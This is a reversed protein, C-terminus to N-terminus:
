KEQQYKLRKYLSNWINNNSDCAIQQKTPCVELNSYDVYVDAKYNDVITLFCLAYGQENLFFLVQNNNYSTIIGVYSTSSDTVTIENDDVIIEVYYQQLSTACVSDNSLYGARTGTWDGQLDDFAITLMDRRLYNDRLKMGPIILLLITTYIIIFTCLIVVKM